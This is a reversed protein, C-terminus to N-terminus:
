AQFASFDIETGEKLRIYAKKTDNRTGMSRGFRKSKGKKNLIQVKEVKAEPFALEIAAKVDAKTARPAVRFVIQGIEESIVATKETVVPAVLVQYLNAASM